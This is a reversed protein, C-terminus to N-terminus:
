FYEDWARRENAAAVKRRQEEDLEAVQEWYAPVQDPSLHPLEPLEFKIDSYKQAFFMMQVVKPEGSYQIFPSSKHYAPYFLLTPTPLNGIKAQVPDLNADIRYVKLTSIKLEKFRLAVKNYHPAISIEDEKNSDYILLMVDDGEGLVKSDIEGAYVYATDKFKDEFQQAVPNRSKNPGSKLKNMLFDRIFMQISHITIEKTDDFPFLRGDVMNFALAPLVDNVLGIARKREANAPDAGDMWAIKVANAYDRGAKEFVQLFDYHAAKNKDIFMVLVPLGITRYIQSTYPNFEEILGVANSTIFRLIDSDLELDLCKTTARTKMVVSNYYLTHRQRKAMTKILEQNSVFGFRTSPWDILDISLDIYKQLYYDEPRDYLFGVVALQANDKLELFDDIQEETELPTFPRYFRDVFAYFTDGMPYDYLRFRNKHVIYLLPLSRTKDIYKSLYGQSALDGRVLKIDSQDLADTAYSLYPEMSCCHTCWQASVALVFLYESKMLDKLHQESTLNFSGASLNPLPCESSSSLSISLLFILM